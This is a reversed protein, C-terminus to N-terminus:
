EIKRRYDIYWDHSWAHIVILAIFSLSFELITLEINGM